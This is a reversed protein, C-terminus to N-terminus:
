QGGSTRLRGTLGTLLKKAATVQHLFFFFLGKSTQLPHRGETTGCRGPSSRHSDPCPSHVCGMGLGARRLLKQVLRSFLCQHTPYTRIVLNIKIKTHTHKQELQNRHPVTLQASLVPANHAHDPGVELQGGDWTDVKLDTHRKDTTDCFFEYM